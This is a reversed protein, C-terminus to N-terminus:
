EGKRDEGTEIDEKKTRPRFNSEIEMLPLGNTRNEWYGLRSNYSYNEIFQTDHERKIYKKAKDIIIHM